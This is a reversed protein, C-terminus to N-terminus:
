GVAVAERLMKRVRLAHLGNHRMLEAEVEALRGNGQAERIRQAVDKPDRNLTRAIQWPQAQDEILMIAILQWTADTFPRRRDVQIVPVPSHKHKWTM